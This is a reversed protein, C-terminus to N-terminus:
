LFFSTLMWSMLIHFNRLISTEKFALFLGVMHDLLGVGPCIDLFSSFELQLLYMRVLTWLLVIVIALVCFSIFHRGVSSNIFFIHIYTHTHTYVHTYMYVHTHTHICSKCIQTHTYLTHIHTYISTYIHTHTYIYIYVHTYVYICKHIHTYLHLYVHTYM